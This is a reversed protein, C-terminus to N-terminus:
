RYKNLNKSISKYWLRNCQMEYTTTTFCRVDTGRLYEANVNVEVRVQEGFTNAKM